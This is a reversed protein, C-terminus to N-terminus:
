FSVQVRMNVTVSNIVALIHFIIWGYFFFKDNAVVYVSRSLMISLSIFFFWTTESVHSIKLFFFSFNFCFLSLPCLICQHSGSALTTAPRYFPRLPDFPIFKWHCLLHPKPIHHISHHWTLLVTNCTKIRCHYCFLSRYSKLVNLGHFKQM